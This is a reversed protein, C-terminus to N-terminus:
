FWGYAKSSFQSCQHNISELTSLRIHWIQSVSPLPSVFTSDPPTANALSCNQVRTFNCRPTPETKITPYTGQAYYKMWSRRELSICSIQQFHNTFSSELHKTSQSLQWVRVVDDPGVSSDDCPISLSNKKDCSSISTGKGETYKSSLRLTINCMQCNWLVHPCSM